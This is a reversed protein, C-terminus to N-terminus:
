LNRGPSCENYPVESANSGDEAIEPIGDIMAIVNLAADTPAPPSSHGNVGLAGAACASLSFLISIALLLVLVTKTKKIM